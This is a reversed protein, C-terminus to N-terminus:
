PVNAPLPLGRRLGKGGPRNESSGCKRRRLRAHRSFAGTPCAPLRRRSSLGPPVPGHPRPPSPRRRRRPCVSWRVSQQPDSSPRRFEGPRPPIRTRQRSHGSYWAAETRSPSRANCISQLQEGLAMLWQPASTKEIPACAMAPTGRAHRGVSWGGRRTVGRRGAPPCGRKSTITQGKARTRAGATVPHHATRAVPPEGAYEARSTRM